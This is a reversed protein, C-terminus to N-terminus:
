SVMTEDYIRYIIFTCIEMFFLCSDGAQQFIDNKAALADSPCCVGWRKQTYSFRGCRDAGHQM